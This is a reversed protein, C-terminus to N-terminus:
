ENMWETFLINLAETRGLGTFEPCALFRWTHPAEM